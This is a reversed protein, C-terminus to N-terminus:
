WDGRRILRRRRDLLDSVEFVVGFLVSPTLGALLAVVAVDGATMEDSGAVVAIVASTVAVFGVAAVLAIVLEIVWRRRHPRTVQM